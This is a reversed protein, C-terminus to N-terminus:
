IEILYCNRSPNFWGIQGIERNEESFDFMSKIKKTQADLVVLKKDDDVVVTAAYHKGDPSIRLNSIDENKFFTQVPLIKTKAQLSNIGGVFLSSSVLILIFVLYKM